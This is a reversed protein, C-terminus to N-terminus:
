RGGPARQGDASSRGGPLSRALMGELTQRSHEALPLGRLRQGIRDIANVHGGAELNQLALVVAGLRLPDAAILRDDLARELAREAVEVSQRTSLVFVAQLRVDPSPDTALALESIEDALPTPTMGLATVLDSRMAPQIDGGLLERYTDAVLEPARFGVALWAGTARTLLPGLERLVAVADTPPLERAALNAVEGAVARDGRERLWALVLPRHRADQLLQRYAATRQSPDSDDLLVLALASLEDSTREGSRQLNAWLTLLLRTAVERALLGDSALRLFQLVTPEHAARLYPQDALVHAGIEAATAHTPMADLVLQVFADIRARDGARGDQDRRGLEAALVLQLVMRRGHDLQDRLPSSLATTMALAREGADAFRALLAAFRARAEQDAAQAGARDDQQAMAATREGLAVLEDVCQEFPRGDDAAPPDPEPTAVAQREIPPRDPGTAPAVEAAPAPAAIPTADIALAPAPTSDSPWVLLMTLLASLVIAALRRRNPVLCHM